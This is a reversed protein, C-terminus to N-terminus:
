ASLRGAPLATPAAGLRRWRWSLLAAALAPMALGPLSLPMGFDRVLVYLLAALAFFALLPLMARLPTPARMLAPRRTLCLAAVPLAALPLCLLQIHGTQSGLALLALATVSWAISFDRLQLRAVAQNLARGQPMGPLLRMLAQERRSQWLTNTLAFGPNLGASAIGIGMGFAGNRLMLELNVHTTSLVLAFAILVLLAVLGVSMGYRLWHQNGHLVIEARAMVSRLRTNDARALVHRLWASTAAVFPQALRELPGGWATPSAPMGEFQMQMMARRIVVRRAYRAQHGTSADDFARTVFWAQALLSLALVGLTYTAWLATLAQWVPALLGSLAGAIPWFLALLLWLWATRSAWLLCFAVLSNVLLLLPWLGPAPLMAWVLGTSLVSSLAWGWLAAQRLAHLQGPVCHAAHPHNQEQLNACVALWAGHVIVLLIGLPVRWAAGPPLWILGAFAALLLLAAILRRGWPSSLDRQRWCAFLIQSFQAATSM